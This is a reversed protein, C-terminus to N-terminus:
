SRSFTSLWDPEPRLASVKVTGVLMGKGTMRLIYATLPQKAPFVTVARLQGLHRAYAYQPNRSLRRETEQALQVGNLLLRDDVILAYGRAEGDVPVLMRFGSVEPLCSAVFDETLKEGVLDSTLGRRGAFRLVPLRDSEGDCVVVDGTRYRYLGGSTTMIVEYRQGAVLEHALWERGDHDVFEFFGSDTALVPRDDRGPVTVVGETSLLGKPQFRVHPLRARLEDFYQRSSGDAWASVLRLGPWLRRSDGVALYQDLRAGARADTPLEIGSIVAGRRYVTLLEDSRRTLADLLMLFFTPSWVSIVALDSRSVLWYLTVLQWEDFNRMEGVSSPVASLQAFLVLAGDGLYAGDPLGVASGGRTCEPARLAPSIAWYACGSELGYASVLGALWPLIARRFDTLSGASYPILKSGGTSGGTREFAVARGSFLVDAEGCEMRDIWSAYDEYGSLPMTQRYEDISRIRNFGYQRGIVTGANRELCTRLWRFQRVEADEAEHRLGEGLGKLRLWPHHM